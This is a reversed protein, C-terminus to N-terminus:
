DNACGRVADRRRLDREWFFDRWSEVPEILSDPPSSRGDAAPFPFGGFQQLLKAARRTESFACNGDANLRVPPAQLLALCDKEAVYRCSLICRSMRMGTWFNFIMSASVKGLM